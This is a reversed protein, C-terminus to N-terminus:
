PLPRIITRHLQFMNGQTYSYELLLLSKNSRIIRICQSDFLADPHVANLLIYLQHKQVTCVLM